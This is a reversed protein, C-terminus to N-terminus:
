RNRWGHKERIPVGTEELEIVSRELACCSELGIHAWMAIGRLHARDPPGHGVEHPADM